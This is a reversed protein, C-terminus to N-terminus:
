FYKEDLQLEKLLKKKQQKLEKKQQEQDVIRAQFKKNQRIMLRLRDFYTRMALEAEDLEDL